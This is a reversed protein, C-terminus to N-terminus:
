FFLADVRWIDLRQNVLFYLYRVIQEFFMQVLPVLGRGFHIGAKRELRGLFGVVEFLPGLEGQFLVLSDLVAVLFSM